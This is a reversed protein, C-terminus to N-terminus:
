KTIILIEKIGIFIEYEINHLSYMAAQALIQEM